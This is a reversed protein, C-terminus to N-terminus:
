DRFGCSHSHFCASIFNVTPSPCPSFFPKGRLHEAFSARRALLDFAVRDGTQNEIV